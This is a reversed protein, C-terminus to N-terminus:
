RTTLKQTITIILLYYNVLHVISIHVPRSVPLLREDRSSGSATSGIGLAVGRSRTFSTSSKALVATKLSCSRLIWERYRESPM